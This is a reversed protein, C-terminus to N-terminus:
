NKKAGATDFNNECQKCFYYYEIHSNKYFLDLNQAKLPRLAINEQKISTSFTCCDELYVQMFQKLLEYNTLPAVLILALTSFGSIPALSDSSKIPAVLPGGALENNDLTILQPNWHPNWYFRFDPAM